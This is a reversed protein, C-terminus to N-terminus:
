SNRPKFPFSKKPNLSIEQPLDSDPIGYKRLEIKYLDLLTDKQYMLEQKWIPDSLDLILVNRDGRKEIGYFRVKEGFIPGSASKWARIWSLAKLGGMLDSFNSISSPKAMSQSAVKPM